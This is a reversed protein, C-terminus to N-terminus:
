RCRSTACATCAPCSASRRSPSTAPRSGPTAHAPTDVVRPGRRRERAARGHGHLRRQRRAAAVRAARPAGTRLDRRRRPPARLRGPRDRLVHLGDRLRGAVLRLGDSPGPLADARDRGARRRGRAVAVEDDHGRRRAAVTVPTSRSRCRRRRARRAAGQRREDADDLPRRQAWLGDFVQDRATARSAARRRAAGRVDDRTALTGTCRADDDRPRRRARVLPRHPAGHLRPERYLASRGRRQRRRHVALRDDVGRDHLRALGEVRAAPRPRSGPPVPTSASSSSRASRPSRPRRPHAGQVLQLRRAGDTTSPSCSCRRTSGPRPWAARSRRRSGHARNPTTRSRATTSRAALRGRRPGPEFDRVTIGGRGSRRRPSRAAARADRVPRADPEFGAARSCRTTARNPARVGLRGHAGGGRAAVHTRRPTSCRRSSATTAAGRARGRARRGLAAALVNDSRAVHAYAAIPSSCGAPTPAPSRSIAGCRTASRPTVPAAACRAHRARARAAISSSPRLESPRCRSEVTPSHAASAALTGEAGHSTGAHTSPRAGVLDHARRRRARDRRASRARRVLVRELQEDRRDERRLRVSSRTLMTVGPATRSTGSARRGRARRGPRPRSARDLRGPEEARLRLVEDAHRLRELLAEAALHRGLEVVEHRQGADAALGAVDHARHPEVERAQGDVRVHRPERAPQLSVFSVSGTFISSSRSPMTAARPAPRSESRSM